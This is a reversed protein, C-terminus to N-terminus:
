KSISIRDITSEPGRLLPNAGDISLAALAIFLYRLSLRLYIQPELSKRGGSPPPNPHPHDCFSMGGLILALKM